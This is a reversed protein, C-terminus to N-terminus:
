NVGVVRIETRRNEQHEKESCKVGDVCHNVVQTEGYGSARIRDKAVGNKILYQEVRQARRRSLTENYLAEGRSDTHSAVEIIINPNENMVRLIKNLTKSDLEKVSAKNFDHYIVPLEGFYDYTMSSTSSITTPYTVSSPSSIITTTTTTPTTVVTTSPTTTTPIPTSVIPGSPTSVKPIATLVIASSLKKSASEGRTCVNTAKTLYGKKEATVVYCCDSELDFSYSGNRESNASQVLDGCDNTLTINAKGINKGTKADTVKGALEFELPKTLPIQVFVRDGPRYGETSMAVTNKLYQDAGASFSCSKNMPMEFLVKGDSGTLVPLENKCDHTIVVGEMPEGTAGDFVFVEVDLLMRYFSYIDDGGAGGPRNSSFFGFTKEDSVVMAFDDAESNIPGGVNTIPGWNNGVRKVFLNDLGGLGTHGNSTFYLTGDNTMSPFIEQGETNIGPIYSNLNISPSWRGNEFRSIYLDMGGFGGPMDSAFIMMEGDNSVAPHAVSYEDSNFPMSQVDVWQGNSYRANYIKLRIIGDDDKGTKGKIINNRTFYVIQQDASFCVPGDHFKTNLKNSYKTPESYNFRMTSDNTTTATVDTYFLELFPNGTWSHIRRIAGGEDRESAYVIGQGYFAAGFDDFNTNVEGLNQIDYSTEDDNNLSALVDTKCSEKLLQGRLDDPNEQTYEDFWKIALDCKGNSQLAMAYFLKNEPKSSPLRVSQGYWYEAESLNGIKRYSAALNVKAQDVDRKDLVELYLQVAENYSLAEFYANARKLKARQGLLSSSSVTLVLVLIVLSRFNM